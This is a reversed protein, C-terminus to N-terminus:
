DSVQWNVGVIIGDSRGCVGVQSRRGTGRERLQSVGRHGEQGKIGGPETHTHSPHDIHIKNKRTTNSSGYKGGIKSQM